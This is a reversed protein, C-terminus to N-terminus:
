INAPNGALEHYGKVTKMHHGRYGKVKDTFLWVNEDDSWQRSIDRGGFSVNELENKCAKRM